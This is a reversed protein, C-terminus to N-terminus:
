DTRQAEIQYGVSDCDEYVDTKRSSVQAAIVQTQGFCLAVIDRCLSEQLNYHRAEILETIGTRLFDYDLVEEIHDQEPCNTNVTLVINFIIRQPAAREHDHIGISVLTEFNELIIQRRTVQYSNM